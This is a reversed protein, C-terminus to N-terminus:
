DEDQAIRDKTNLEWEPDERFSIISSTEGRNNMFFEFAEDFEDSQAELEEKFKILNRTLYHYLNILHTDSMDKIAINKGDKTTWTYGLRNIMEAEILGFINM